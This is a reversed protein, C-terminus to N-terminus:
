NSFIDSGLTPDGTCLVSSSGYFINNNNLYDNYNWDTARHFGNKEFFFLLNIAGKLTVIYALSCPNVDKNLIFTPSLKKRSM